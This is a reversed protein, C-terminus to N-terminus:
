RRGTQVKDRKAWQGEARQEGKFERHWISCHKLLWRRRTKSQAAMERRKGKKKSSGQGKIDIHMEGRDYVNLVESMTAKGMVFLTDQKKAGTKEKRGRKSEEDEKDQADEM